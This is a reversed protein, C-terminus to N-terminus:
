GLLVRDLARALFHVLMALATFEAMCRASCERQLREFRELVFQLLELPKKGGISSTTRLQHPEEDGVVVPDESMADLAEDLRGIGQALHEDDRWIPLLTCRAMRQRKM